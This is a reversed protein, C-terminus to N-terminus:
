RRGLQDFAGLRLAIMQAEELAQQAQVRKGTLRYALALKRKARAFGPRNPSASMARVGRELYDRGKLWRGCYLYGFGLHVMADGVQEEPVGGRERLRLM